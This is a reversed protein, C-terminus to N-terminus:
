HVGESIKDRWFNLLDELTKELSIEPEWGISDKIKRNDGVLLPLDVERFKEKSVKVEIKESSIRLLEKLMEEISVAKGMCVNYVEGSSGKEVLKVYADVVDQVDCFDRSVGLNGVHIEPQQLGAEILAIQRAFDSCVFSPSQRAGTHNFARVMVIEFDEAHSYQYCLMESAVKSVAYPSAPKLPFDETIPMSSAPVKGYEEASGVSLIKPRYDLGRVSELLNVTGMFNIAFTEMRDKWSFGVHSKAALHFILDPKEKLMLDRLMEEDTISCRFLDLDEMIHEINILEEEFL